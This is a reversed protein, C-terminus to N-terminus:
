RFREKDRHTPRNRWLCFSIRTTPISLDRKSISLFPRLMTSGPKWMFLVSVHGACFNRVEVMVAKGLGHGRFAPQIFFDDV